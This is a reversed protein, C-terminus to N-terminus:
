NFGFKFVEVLNDNAVVQTPTIFFGEVLEYGLSRYAKVILDACQTKNDEALLSYELDVLNEKAYSVLENRQKETLNTMRYVKVNPYDLWHDLANISSLTDYTLSELVSEEDIVMAIHGHRYFSTHTNNTYLIDGPKLSFFYRLNEGIIKEQFTLGGIYQCEFQLPNARQKQFQLLTNLDNVELYNLNIGTQDYIAQKDNKSLLYELDKKLGFNKYAMKENAITLIIFLILLLCPLYPLYKKKM